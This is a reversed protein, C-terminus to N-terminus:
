SYRTPGRLCGMILSELQRGDKESFELAIPVAISLQKLKSLEQQHSSLRVWDKETTVLKLNRGLALKLLDQAEPVSIEHHDQFVRREEIKVGLGQVTEFFREPHGIGAYALVKEDRLLTTNGTVSISASFVPGRFGNSDLQSKLDAHKKEAHEPVLAGHNVVIADVCGVQTNLPARLPGAPIVCGNGVGRIGDVVAITFDKKLSPNQLGDDMIIIDFNKGSEVIAVAGDARNASVMVPAHRVLLLPEDGVDRATHQDADVWVPGKLRGGYGRTLFVPRAGDNKLRKALWCALPTKGTGGATFNGVCAVPLSVDLGDGRLMRRYVIWGYSKSFPSLAWAQWSLRGNAEYWWSPENLPM